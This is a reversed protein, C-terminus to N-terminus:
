RLNVSVYPADNSMEENSTFQVKRLKAFTRWSTNYIIGSLVQLSHVPNKNLIKM